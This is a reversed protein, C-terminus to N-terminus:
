ATACDTNQDIPPLILDPIGCKNPLLPIRNPDYSGIKGLAAKLCQCVAQRDAKNKIDGNIHKVGACCTSSPGNGNKLFPLCPAVEVDVQSCSPASMASGTFVLGVIGLVIILCRGM